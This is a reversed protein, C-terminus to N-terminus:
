RASSREEPVLSLNWEVAGGSREKTPEINCQMV